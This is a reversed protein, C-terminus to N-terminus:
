SGQTPRSKSDKYVGDQRKQWHIPLVSQALPTRAAIMNTKKDERGAVCVYSYATRRDLPDNAEPNGEVSPAILVERIDPNAEQLCVISAAGKKLDMDIHAQLGKDSRKEGWNGSLVAFTGVDPRALYPQKV